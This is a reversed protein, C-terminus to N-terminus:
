QGTNQAFEKTKQQARKAMRRVARRQRNPDRSIRNSSDEEVDERLLCEAWAGEWYQSFSRDWKRKGAIRVIEERRRAVRAMQQRQSRTPRAIKPPRGLDPAVGDVTYEDVVERIDRETESGMADYEGDTSDGELTGDDEEEDGAEDPSTDKSEESSDLGEQHRYEWMEETVDRVNEKAMVLDRKALSLRDECAQQARLAQRTLSANIKAVRKQSEALVANDALIDEEHENLRIAKRRLIERGEAINLSLGMLVDLHQAQRVACLKLEEPNRVVDDVIYIPDDVSDGSDKSDM